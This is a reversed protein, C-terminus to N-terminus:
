RGVENKAIIADARAPYQAVTRRVPMYPPTKTWGETEVNFGYSLNNVIYADEGPNLTTVASKIEALTAAGSKDEGVLSHSAPSGVTAQWNGRFLGTLM